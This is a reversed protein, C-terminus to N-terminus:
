FSHISVFGETRDMENISIDDDLSIRSSLEDSTTSAADREPSDVLPMLDADSDTDEEHSKMQVPLSRREPTHTTLTLIQMAM